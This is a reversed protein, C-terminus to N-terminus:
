FLKQMTEKPFVSISVISHFGYESCPCLEEFKEFIDKKIKPYLQKPSKEKLDTRLMEGVPYNHTFTFLNVKYPKFCKIEDILPKIKSISDEDISSIQTLYDGDNSDVTIAILFKKM